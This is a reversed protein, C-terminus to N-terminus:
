RTVFRALNLLKSSIKLNARMASKLNVLFRVRNNELMFAIMGGQSIFSEGEGVTLVPKGRIKELLDVVLDPDTEAVFLIHFRSFERESSSIREVKYSVGGADEESIDSPLLDGFPDSGFVGIRVPGSGNFVVDAPWEVFDAFKQLFAAKVQYEAMPKGAVIFPILVFLLLLSRTSFSIYRSRKKMILEM